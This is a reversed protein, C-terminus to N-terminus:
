GGINWGRCARTMAPSSCRPIQPRNRLATGQMAGPDRGGVHSVPRRPRDPPLTPPKPKDNRPLERKETMGPDPLDPRPEPMPPDDPM